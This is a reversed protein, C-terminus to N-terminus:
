AAQANDRCRVYLCVLHGPGLGRRTGPPDAACSASPRLLALGRRALEWAACSASPRAEEAEFLWGV